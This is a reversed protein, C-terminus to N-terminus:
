LVDEDDFDDPFRLAPPLNALRRKTREKASPQNAFIATRDFMSRQRGARPNHYPAIPQVNAMVRWVQSCANHLQNDSHPISDKFNDYNLENVMKVMAAAVDIRKVVARFLYDSGVTKKVKANPFVKEIDGQRRARVLLEDHKAPAKDVISLFANSTFIWM